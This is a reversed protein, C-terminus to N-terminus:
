FMNEVLLPDLPLKLTKILSPRDLNAHTLNGRALILTPEQYRTLELDEDM